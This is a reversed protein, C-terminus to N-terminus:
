AREGSELSHSDGVGDGMAFGRISRWWVVEVSPLGGRLLSVVEVDWWFSWRVRWTEMSQRQAGISGALRPGSVPSTQGNRLQDFGGLGLLAGALREARM